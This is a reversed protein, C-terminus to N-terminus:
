VCKNKMKNKILNLKVLDFSLKENFIRKNKIETNKNKKKNNLIITLSPNNKFKM